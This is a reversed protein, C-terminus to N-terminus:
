KNDKNFLRRMITQRTIIGMFYGRDDVVPIFNQRMAMEFVKDLPEVVSVSPYKEKNLIDCVLINEINRIDIHVVENEKEILLFWLFDGESVTGLYKGERSIVPIASYGHYKMKELGQRLSYDDYLYAVNCKPELFHAINM